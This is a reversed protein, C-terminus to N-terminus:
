MSKRRKAWKRKTWILCLTTHKSNEPKQSGSVDSGLFELPSRLFTDKRRGEAGSKLLTKFDHRIIPSSALYCEYCPYPRYIIVSREFRSKGGYSMFTPIRPLRTISSASSTSPRRAPALSLDPIAYFSLFPMPSAHISPSGFFFDKADM